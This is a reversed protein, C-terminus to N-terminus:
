WGPNQFKQGNASQLATAEKGPVPCRLFKETTATRHNVVYRQYGTCTRYEIGNEPDPIFNGNEDRDFDLDNNSNFALKTITEGVPRMGTVTGTEALLMWRRVDFFRHDEFALEVRRENRVRTRFEDKTMGYALRPMGVRVRVTNVADVAENPATEALSAENAAEAYNLYLEALRYVRYYGDMQATRSSTINFYKHLYYGTRTYLINTMSANYKSGEGTYITPQPRNDLLHVHAGNYYVTSKLRPDRNAYPDAEDYLTAEPNIIPQLHDTDSYGLIPLKGDITEYSDILEQSPCSGARIHGSLIPATNYQWVNCQSIGLITEKDNTGNVDPKRQFLLDYACNSILNENNSTSPATTFLAYGNRVCDDLSTKCIESADAWSISGDNNLPSAAYLAAESMIASAIAKNIRMLDSDSSGSRWDVYDCALVERCDSIIQRVVDSFSAPRVKSYDYESDDKQDLILPVGGYIKALQLYYYARLGFAEARYRLRNGEELIYANDINHILINCNAIGEYYKEWKDLATLPNNSITALGNNWQSIPGGEVDDVDHANDTAADLFSRNAGYASGFSASTMPLYCNNLWGATQIESQFIDEFKISGDPYDNIETCSALAVALAAFPLFTRIYHKM